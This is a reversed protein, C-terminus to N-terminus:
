PSACHNCEHMYSVVDEYVRETFAFLVDDEESFIESIMKAQRELENKLHEAFSMLPIHEGQEDVAL